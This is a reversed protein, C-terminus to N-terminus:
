SIWTQISVGAYLLWRVFGQTQTVGIAEYFVLDIQRRTLGEPHPTGNALQTLLYDHIVAARSYSGWTPLIAWLFQPVSAGDTIFGSPVTIARGSGLSGVEYIFDHELRWLRWDADLSTITLPGTFSSM